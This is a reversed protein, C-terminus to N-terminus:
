GRGPLILGPPLLKSTISAEDLQKSAAWFRVITMAIRRLPTRDLREPGLAATLGHATAGTLSAHPTPTSGWAESRLALAVQSASGEAAVRSSIGSRRASGRPDALCHDFLRAFM